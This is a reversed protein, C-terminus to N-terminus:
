DRSILNEADTLLGGAEMLNKLRQHLAPLTIIELHSIDYTLQGFQTPVGWCHRLILTAREVERVAKTVSGHMDYDVQWLTGEPVVLVPVVACAQADRLPTTALERVLDFCGNVAQLWKEYTAGDSSKFEGSNERTPQDTQRGVVEAPHYVGENRYTTQFLGGNTRKRVVVTHYAESELRPTAHILLPAHSRLNKCEVAFRLSRGEATWRARMDYSRIRNTVPDVYVAAHEADLGVLRLVNLTAMEFGFDSDKRLFDLLDQQSLPSTNKRSM